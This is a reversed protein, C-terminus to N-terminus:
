TGSVGDLPDASLHGTRHLWRTFGRPTSLM